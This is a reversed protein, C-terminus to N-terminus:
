GTAVLTCGVVANFATKFTSWNASLAVIKPYTQPVSAADQTAFQSYNGAIVTDSASASLMEAIAMSGLRMKLPDVFSILTTEDASHQFSRWQRSVSQANSGAVLADAYVTAQAVVVVAQAAALQANLVLVLAQEAPLRAALTSSSTVTDALDNAVIAKAAALSTQISSVSAVASALSALDSVVTAVLTDVASLITSNSL